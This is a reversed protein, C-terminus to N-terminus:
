HDFRRLTLRHAWERGMEYEYDMGRAGLNTTFSQRFELMGLYFAIILKM